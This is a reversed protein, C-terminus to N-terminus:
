LDEWDEQWDGAQAGTPRLVNGGMPQGLYHSQGLRTHLEMQEFKLVKDPQDFFRPCGFYLDISRNFFRPRLFIEEGDEYTLVFAWQFLMGALQLERPPIRYIDPLSTRQLRCGVISGHRAVDRM